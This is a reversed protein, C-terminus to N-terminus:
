KLLNVGTACVFRNFKQLFISLLRIIFKVSDFPEVLEAATVGLAVAANFLRAGDLHFKLNNEKAFAGVQLYQHIM